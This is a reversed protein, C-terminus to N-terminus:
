AHGCPVQRMLPDQHPSQRGENGPDNLPRPGPVWWDFFRWLSGWGGGMLLATAIKPPIKQRPPPQPDGSDMQTHPPTCLLLSFVTPPHPTLCNWPARRSAGVRLWGGWLPGLPAPSGMAEHPKHKKPPPWPKSTRHRSDADWFGGHRSNAAPLHPAGGAPRGTRSCGPSQALANSPSGCKQPGKPGNTKSGHSTEVVMNTFLTNIKFPHSFPQADLKDDELFNSKVSNTLTLKIYKKPSSSITLTSCHLGITRKQKQPSAPCTSTRIHNLFSSEKEASIPKGKIWFPFALQPRLLRSLGPEWLSGEPFLHTPDTAGKPGAQETKFSKSQATM